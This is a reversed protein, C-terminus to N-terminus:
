IGFRLSIYNQRSNRVSHTQLKLISFREVIVSFIYKTSKLLSFLNSPVRQASCCCCVSDISFLNSKEMDSAGYVLCVRQPCM